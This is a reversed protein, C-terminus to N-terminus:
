TAKSGNEPRLRQEPRLVAVPITRGARREYRAVEPAATLVVDRWTADREAGTLERAEVRLRRSRLQVQATPAARLNAFWDPDRRSGSGTGWVLLGDPTQLYRVCTSRPVGTRRGPSTILLVTVGRSGSSLRGDLRRYLWVGFRNGARTVSRRFRAM